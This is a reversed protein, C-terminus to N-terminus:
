EPLPVGNAYVAWSLRRKITGDAELLLNGSMGQYHSESTGSLVGLKAILGYADAGFAFLREYDPATDQWRAVMREKLGDAWLTDDLRAPMDIFRIGDLEDAIQLGRLTDHVRSTAYIPLEGANYFRLQLVVQAAVVPPAALFLFDADTRPRPDGALKTGVIRELRKHRQRSADINLLPLVPDVYSAEDVLNFTAHELFRGGLQEWRAQFARHIRAGWEDEPLIALTTRHGELWAQEAVQHAEDEPALGYYVFYPPRQNSGKTTPADDLQNLALMSVPPRGAAALAQLHQKQLPGIIFEAGDEVAQKLLPVPAQEATDYFRMIPQSADRYWAHLIGERIARAAEQFPGSAPLLVAIKNPRPHLRRNLEQLYPLVHKDAPHQPFERRWYVLAEQWQQSNARLNRDLVALEVWGSYVDGLSTPIAQLASKDARALINWLKLEAKGRAKDQLAYHGLSALETAAGAPDAAAERAALRLELWNLRLQPDAPPKVDLPILARAPQALALQLRAELLNRRMALEPADGATPLAKLALDPQAAQAYKEAAQLRYRAAEAPRAAAQEAMRLYQQAAQELPTDPAPPLLPEPAATRPQCGPLLTIMALM